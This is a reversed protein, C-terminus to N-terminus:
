PKLDATIDTQREETRNEPKPNPEAVGIEQSIRESSKFRYAYFMPFTSTTISVKRCLINPRVVASKSCETQIVFHITYLTILTHTHSRAVKTRSANSAVSTAPNCDRRLQLWHILCLSRTFTHHLVHKIRPLLVLTTPCFVAFHDSSSASKQYNRYSMATTVLNHIDTSIEKVNCFINRQEAGESGERDVGCMICIACKSFKEFKHERYIFTM